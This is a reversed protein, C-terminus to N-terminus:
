ATRTPRSSSAISAGTGERAVVEADFSHPEYVTQDGLLYDGHPAFRIRDVRDGLRRLTVELQSARPISRSRTRTSSRASSPRFARSSSRSSSRSSATRSGAAATRAASSRVRGRRARRRPSAHEDRSCRSRAWSRCASRSRWSSLSNVTSGGVARRDPTRDAPRQPAGRHARAPVARARGPARARRRAGRDARLPGARLRPAAGRRRARHRAPRAHAASAGGGLLGRPRGAGGRSGHGRPRAFCAGRGRAERRSVGAEAIAGRNRNWLPLPVSVGVVLATDEPGSLRRPGASLTVDPMRESTARARLADRRALETQWRAVSPSAELRQAIQEASPSARFGSSIARRASSAPSRAPGPRPSRRDRRRSSMSPTSESSARWTSRCRRASRRRPRPSERACAARRWVSCRARSSSRRTPSGTASRPQSCTSSSTRPASGPRRDSAGRLGLGRPRPRCRRPRRAGRAKRRARDASRASAHDPRQRSWSVPRLGRLGRARAVRDPEAARGSPPAGGRARSGRLCRGRAGPKAAAGCGARGRAPTRGHARASCRSALRRRCAPAEFAPLERGVPYPAPAQARSALPVSLGVAVLAACRLIAICRM